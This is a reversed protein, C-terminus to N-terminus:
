KEIALFVKPKKEYGSFPSEGIGNLRLIDCRPDDM